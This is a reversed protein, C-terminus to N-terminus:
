PTVSADRPPAIRQHAPLECRPASVVGAGRRDGAAGRTERDRGVLEALRTRLRLLRSPDGRGRQPSLLPRLKATRLGGATRPASEPTSTLDSRSQRLAFHLAPGGAAAQWHWRAFRFSRGVECRARLRPEHDRKPSRRSAILGGRRCPRRPQPCGPLLPHWSSELGPWCRRPSRDSSLGRETVSRCSPPTSGRRSTSTSSSSRPATWRSRGGRRAKRCAARTAQDSCSCQSPIRRMCITSPRRLSASEAHSTIRGRHGTTHSPAGPLAEKVAWGRKVYAYALLDAHGRLVGTLEALARRWEGAEVWAGGVVLSVGGSRSRAAVSRFEDATVASVEGHM